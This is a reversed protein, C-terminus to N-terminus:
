ACRGGYIQDLYSFIKHKSVPKEFFDPETMSSKLIERYQDNKLSSIILCEVEPYRRKIHNCIALGTQENDLFYDAIVLDCDFTGMIELADKQNSAFFCKLDPDYAKVFSQLIKFSLSDDEVILVKKHDKLANIYYETYQMFEASMSNQYYFTVWDSSEVFIETRNSVNEETITRCKKSLDESHDDIIM